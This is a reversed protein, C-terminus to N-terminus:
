GRQGRFGTALVYMEASDSRSAKPKIHVVKAFCEKLMNLLTASSGGQRVKCLFAGNQSLVQIAFHAAEEALGTIRLHDTGSHGITNPAMDSLVVDVKPAHQHLLEIVADDTFDGLLTVVGALTDIPLLDLAIVHGNQGVLNAAIQSWSGPAAGLDIVTQGARLLHSKEQIELLKYAARSRYGERQAAQVFPDNLQRNLWLTSSHSRKAATKVRKKLGSHASM